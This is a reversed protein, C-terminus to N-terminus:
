QRCTADRRGPFVLLASLLATTLAHSEEISLLQYTLGPEGLPIADSPTLDSPKSDARYVLGAVSDNDTPLM